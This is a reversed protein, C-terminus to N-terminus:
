ERKPSIPDNTYFFNKTRDNSEVFGKNEFCFELARGKRSCFQDIHKM